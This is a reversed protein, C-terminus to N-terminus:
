GVTGLAPFVDLLWRSFATLRGTLMAIGLAVLVLGGGIQLAAGVGRLRGLLRAVRDAFLASLLFPM